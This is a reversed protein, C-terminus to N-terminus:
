SYLMLKITIFHVGNQNTFLILSSHFSTKTIDGFGHFLLACYVCYAQSLAILTSFIYVDNEFIFLQDGILVMKGCIKHEWISFM